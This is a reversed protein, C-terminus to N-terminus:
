NAEELEPVEYTAHGNSIFEGPWSAEQHFRGLIGEYLTVIQDYYAPDAIELLDELIKTYPKIVLEEIGRRVDVLSMNAFMGVGFRKLDNKEGSDLILSSVFKTMDNWMLDLTDSDGLERQTLNETDIIGVVGTQTIAFNKIQGDPHFVGNAHIFALIKSIDQVTENNRNAIEATREDVVKRGVVWEDRDLSQFDDRKKSIFVFHDGDKAPYIAIPEFTEVGLEKLKNYGHFERLAVVEDNFPKYAVATRKRTKTEHLGFGVNHASRREEIVKDPHVKFEGPQALTDWFAESIVAGGIALMQEQHSLNADSEISLRKAPDVWGPQHFTGTELMEAAIGETFGKVRAM